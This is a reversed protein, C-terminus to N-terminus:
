TNRPTTIEYDISVNQVHQQKGVRITDGVQQVPPNGVVKKVREEPTGYNAGWAIGFLRNEGAHVHGVIHVMSDPGPSLHIYGSGTDVTLVVSGHVDLRRDFTGEAAFALVPSLLLGAAAAIRLSRHM